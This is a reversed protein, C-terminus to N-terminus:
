PTGAVVVVPQALEGRLQVVDDLLHGVDGLHRYQTAPRSLDGHLDIRRAERGVRNVRQGDLTGDLARVDPLPAGVDDAAPPLRNCAPLQSRSVSASWLTTTSPRLPTRDQHAVDRRNEVLVGLRRAVDGKVCAVPRVGATVSAMAFRLPVLAM